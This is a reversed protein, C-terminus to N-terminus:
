RRRRGNPPAEIALQEPQVSQPVAGAKEESQVTVPLLGTHDIPDLGAEALMADPEFGARVGVGVATMLKTFEDVRDVGSLSDIQADRQEFERMRMVRVLEPPTLGYREMLWMFPAGLDSLKGLADVMQAESRTEVDKWLVDGRAVALAKKTDGQALAVLRFIEKVGRGFHETKEGTRKVLGTELAKMTDGSVNSIGGGLLLYHAPTRTQAAIHGVAREIVGTYAELNAASWEGIKANPDELWVVRNVAFKELDVPREGIQQGDSNLVPVMPREAGTIVRQPFSAYDAANFLYAWLLNIADQMAITGAVDSMPEGLLRPRNPMEVLPVVGFPNPLPWPEGTVERPEWSGVFSSQYVGDLLRKHRDTMKRRRFKWVQDPLYLTAFEWEDDAWVKLGARRARTEPDYDVIAQSPHEWTIRTPNDGWVLAYTRKAVIADLWALDSLADAENDLWVSWLEDDGARGSDAPRVGIVELRETPADAVTQTWNDSFRAYRKSFYSQFEDSAFKLRHVGRYYDDYLQVDPLRRRLDEGLTDIWKVAEQANAMPV